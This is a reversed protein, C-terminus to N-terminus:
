CDPYASVDLTWDAEYFDLYEAVHAGWYAEVHQGQPHVTYTVNIGRKQLKQVFIKVDGQVYDQAGHDIAVIPTGIDIPTDLLDFPNNDKFDGSYVFPSHGGIRNFLGPHQFATSFAWFGGRSLGGIARRAPDDWTCYHSVVEPLLETAIVHAYPSGDSGQDVDNGDPMVIILPALTGATIGQDAAATLGLRVWQDDNMATSNEVWGHLMILLPYRKGQVQYCPPLYVRYDVVVSALTSNFTEQTITGATEACEPETATPAITPPPVLAPEITPIVEPSGASEPTTTHDPSACGAM